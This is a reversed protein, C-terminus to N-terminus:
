NQILPLLHLVVTNEMLLIRKEISFGIQYKKNDLTAMNSMIKEVEEESYEEARKDLDVDARKLVINAYRRGVSKIATLAFM